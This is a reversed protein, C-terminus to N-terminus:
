HSCSELDRQSSHFGDEKGEIWDEEKRSKIEKMLKVWATYKQFSDDDYETTFQMTCHQAASYRAKCVASYRTIFPVCVVCWV